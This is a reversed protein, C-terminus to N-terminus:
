SRAVPRPSPCSTPLAAERVATDAATTEASGQGGSRMLSQWADLWAPRMAISATGSHGLRDRFLAASPSEGLEASM